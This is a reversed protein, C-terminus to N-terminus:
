IAMLIQEFIWDQECKWMYMYGNDFFTGYAPLLYSNGEIIVPIVKISEYDQKGSGYYDKIKFPKGSVYFLKNTLSIKSYYECYKGDFFKYHCISYKQDQINHQCCIKYLGTDEILYFDSFLQKKLPILKM